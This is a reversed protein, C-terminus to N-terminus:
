TCGTSGVVRWGAMGGVRSAMWPSAGDIEGSPLSTAKARSSELPTPCLRRTTGTLPPFSRTTAALMGDLMREITHDGSPLVIQNPTLGGTGQTGSHLQRGRPSGFLFHP